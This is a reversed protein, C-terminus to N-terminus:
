WCFEAPDQSCWPVILRVWVVFPIDARCEKKEKWRALRKASLVMASKWIVVGSRWQYLSQGVSKVATSALGERRLDTRREGRIRSKVFNILNCFLPPYGLFVYVGSESKVKWRKEVRRGSNTTMKLSANKKGHFSQEFASRAERSQQMKKKRIEYMLILGSGVL